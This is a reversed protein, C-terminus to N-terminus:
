ENEEYKVSEKIQVVPFIYSSEEMMDLWLRLEKKLDATCADPAAHMVSLHISVNLM